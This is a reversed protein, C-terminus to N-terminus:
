EVAGIRATMHQPVVTMEMLMTTALAAINNGPLYPRDLHRM